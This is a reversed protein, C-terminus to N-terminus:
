IRMPDVLGARDALVDGTVAGLRMFTSVVLRSTFRWTGDDRTFDDYYIAYHEFCIDSGPPGLSGDAPSPGIAIECFTTTAQASDRGLLRIAPCHPTLMLLKAEATSKAFFEIYRDASEQRSGLGRHEWVLDDALLSRMTKLDGRNVLDFYSYILQQIKFIEIWDDDSM